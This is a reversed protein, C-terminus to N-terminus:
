ILRSPPRSLGLMALQANYNFHKLLDIRLEPGCRQLANNALKANRRV